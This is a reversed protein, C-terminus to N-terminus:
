TPITLLWTPRQQTGFVFTSPTARLSRFYFSPPLPGPKGEAPNIDVRTGVYRGRARLVACSTRAEHLLDRFYSHYSNYICDSNSNSDNSRRCQDGEKWEAESLRVLVEM